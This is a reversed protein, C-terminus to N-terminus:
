RRRVRCISRFCLLVGERSRFGLGLKELRWKVKPRWGSPFWWRKRGREGECDNGVAVMQSRQTELSLLHRRSVSTFHAAFPSGQSLRSVVREVGDEECREDKNNTPRSFAVDPYGLLSRSTLLTRTQLSSTVPPTTRGIAVDM